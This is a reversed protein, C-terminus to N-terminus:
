VTRQAPALGGTVGRDDVGRRHAPGADEFGAEGFRDAALDDGGRGAMGGPQELLGRLGEDLVEDPGIREVGEDLRDVEGGGVIRLLADGGEAFAADGVAPDAVGGDLD